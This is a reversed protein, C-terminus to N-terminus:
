RRNILDWANTLAKSYSVAIKALQTSMRHGGRRTPYTERNLAKETRGSGGTRPKGVSQTSGAPGVEM